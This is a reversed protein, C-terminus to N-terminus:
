AAGASEDGRLWDVVEQTVKSTSFLEYRWGWGDQEFCTNQFHPSASYAIPFGNLRIKLPAHPNILPSATKPSGNTNPSATAPM